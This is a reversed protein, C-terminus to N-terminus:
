LYTVINFLVVAIRILAIVRETTRLRRGLASTAAGIVFEKTQERAVTQESPGM